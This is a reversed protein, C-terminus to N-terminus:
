APKPKKVIAAIISLPRNYFLCSWGLHRLWATTENQKIDHNDSQHVHFDSPWM